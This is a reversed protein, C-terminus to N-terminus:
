RCSCTCLRTTVSSNISLFIGYCLYYSMLEVAAGALLEPILEGGGRSHVTCSIRSRTCILNPFRGHQYWTFTALDSYAPLSTMPQAGVPAPFVSDKQIGSRMARSSPLSIIMITTVGSLRNPFCFWAVNSVAPSGATATLLSFAFASVHLTLSDTCSAPDISM